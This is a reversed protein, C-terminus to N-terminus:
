SSCQGLVLCCDKSRPKFKGAGSMVEDLILIVGYKDCVARIATFYGKPAAVCGCTAGVVTEAVFAVVTHPGLRLFEDELEKALRAAYDPESEGSLMYRYAYAPSVHSVRNELTIPLYPKRRAIHSSLSLAGITNGHYAQKRGIYNVREPEGKEVFYQRALKM